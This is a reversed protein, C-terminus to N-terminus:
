FLDKTFSEAALIHKNSSHPEGGYAITSEEQPSFMQLNRIQIILLYMLGKNQRHYQLGGEVWWAGHVM